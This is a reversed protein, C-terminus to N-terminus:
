QVVTTYETWMPTAIPLHHACVDRTFTELVQQEGQTQRLVYRLTDEYQQTSETVDMALKWWFQQRCYQLISASLTCAPGKRTRMLLRLWPKNKSQPLHQHRLMKRDNQQYVPHNRSRQQNAHQPHQSCSERTVLSTDRRAQIDVKHGKRVGGRTTKVIRHEGDHFSSPSHIHSYNHRTL